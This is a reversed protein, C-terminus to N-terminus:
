YMTNNLNVRKRSTHQMDVIFEFPFFDNMRVHDRWIYAMCCKHQKSGSSFM